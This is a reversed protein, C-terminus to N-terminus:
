IGTVLSILIGIGVGLGVKKSDSKLIEIEDTVLSNFDLEDLQLYDIGQKELKSIINRKAYKEVETEFNEKVKTFM